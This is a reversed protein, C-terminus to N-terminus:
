EGQLYVHSCLWAWSTSSTVNKGWLCDGLEPVVVKRQLIKVLIPSDVKTDLKIAGETYCRQVGQILESTEVVM